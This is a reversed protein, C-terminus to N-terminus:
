KVIKDKPIYYEYPMKGIKLNYVLIGYRNSYEYLRIFILNPNAKIFKRVIEHLSRGQYYKGRQGGAKKILAKM